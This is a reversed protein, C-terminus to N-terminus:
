CTLEEITNQSEKIDRKIYQSLSVARGNMKYKHMKTFVTSSSYYDAISNIVQM